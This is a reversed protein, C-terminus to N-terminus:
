PPSWRCRWSVRTGVRYRRMTRPKADKTAEDWEVAHEVKFGYVGLMARLARKTPHGVLTKTGETFDDAAAHAQAKSDNLLVRIYPDKGPEVRTDLLLYRPELARLRSFLEPYRLTHYVFGFCQVVDVDLREKALVAFVDGTIFRYSRSKAGYAALNEEAHEVLEPRAEIGTVHAAGADLAPLCWRGDHSAVDLVRTGALVDKNREILERHRLNLRGADASTSSTGLFRPHEDFYGRTKAATGSSRVSASGM